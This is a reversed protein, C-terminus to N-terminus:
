LPALLRHTINMTCILLFAHTQTPFLIRCQTGCSILATSINSYSFDHFLQLSLDGVFFSNNFSSSSCCPRLGPASDGAQERWGLLVVRICDPPLFGVSLRLAPVPISRVVVRPCSSGLGQGGALAVPDIPIVGFVHQFRMLSLLHEVAALQARAKM